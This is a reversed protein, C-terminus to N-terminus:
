GNSSKYEVYIDIKGNNKAIGTEQIINHKKLFQITSLLDENEFFITVEPYADKNLEYEKMKRIVYLLVDSIQNLISEKSSVFNINDILNFSNSEFKYKLPAISNQPIADKLFRNKWVLSEALVRKYVIEKVNPNEKITKDSILEISSLQKLKKPIQNSFDDAVLLGMEQKQTLFRDVLNIFGKFAYANHSIEENELHHNKHYEDRKDITSFLFPINAKSILQFLEAIFQTVDEKTKTKILPFIDEEFEKLKRPKSPKKNHFIYNFIETFHVEAELMNKFGLFEQVIEIIQMEFKLVSSEHVVLGGYLSFPINPHNNTGTEDTYILYM